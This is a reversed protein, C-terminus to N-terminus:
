QLVKWVGDILAVKTSSPLAVVPRVAVLEIAHYHDLIRGNYTLIWVGSSNNACPSVLWYGDCVDIDKTNPVYLDYDKTLSDLEPGNTYVLETGNKTNYSKLLLEATPSGTALAGQIGNTFNSWASENKLGNLLTDRDAESWVSYPYYATNTVLGASEPVLDAPLYDTLIAYVTDGEKYLIRWDDTTVGTTGTINNDIVDNGLDIYDGINDNTVQELTIGPTQSYDDTTGSTGEKGPQVPVATLQVGITSSVSEALPTKTLEVTVMVTTTEGSTLSTKALRSSLTFYETNSNTTAVSLDASLDTSLNQITYIANVSEGKQTLGSIDITANTDNTIRATVSTDDSVEPTGTFKVNFNAQNPDASATGSINLTISQIAAYGLGLLLIGVLLVGIIIKTTKRM